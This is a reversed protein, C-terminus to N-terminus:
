LTPLVLHPRLQAFKMSMPEYEYEIECEYTLAHSSEVRIYLGKSHKQKETEERTMDLHQQVGFLFPHVTLLDM